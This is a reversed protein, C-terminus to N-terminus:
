PMVTVPSISRAVAAARVARDARGPGYRVGQLDDADVPEEAAVVGQAALGSQAPVGYRVSVGGVTLLDVGHGGRALGAAVALGVADAHAAAPQLVFDGLWATEEWAAMSRAM